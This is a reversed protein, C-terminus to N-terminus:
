FYKEVVAFLLRGDVGLLNSGGLLWRFGYGADMAAFLMENDLGGSLNTQNADASEILRKSAATFAALAKPRLSNAESKAM